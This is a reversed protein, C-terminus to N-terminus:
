ECRAEPLTASHASISANFDQTKAPSLLVLM